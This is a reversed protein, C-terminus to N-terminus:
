DLPRSRSPLLSRPPSVLNNVSSQTAVVLDVPTPGSNVKEELRTDSQADLANIRAIVALSCVCHCYSCCSVKTLAEGGAQKWRCVGFLLSAIEVRFVPRSHVFSEEAALM